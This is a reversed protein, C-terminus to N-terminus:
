LAERILFLDRTRTWAPGGSFGDMQLFFTIGFVDRLKASVRKVGVRLRPIGEGAQAARAHSARPLAPPCLREPALFICVLRPAPLNKGPVEGGPPERFYALLAGFHHM